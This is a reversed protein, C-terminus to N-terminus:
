LEIIMGLAPLVAGTAVDIYEMETFRDLLQGGSCCVPPKECPHSGDSSQLGDHLMARVLAYSVAGIM